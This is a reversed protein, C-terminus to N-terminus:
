KVVVVVVVRTAEFQGSSFNFDLVNMQLVVVVSKAKEKHVLSPRMELGYGKARLWKSLWSFRMLMMM